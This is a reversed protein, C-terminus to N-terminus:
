IHFLYSTLYRTFGFQFRKLFDNNPNFYEFKFIRKYLRPQILSSAKVGILISHLPMPFLESGSLNQETISNNPNFSANLEIASSNLLSLDKLVLRQNNKEKNSNM